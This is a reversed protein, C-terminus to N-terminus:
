PRRQVPKPAKAPKEPEPGAMEDVRARASILARNLAAAADPLKASSAPPGGQIKGDILYGWTWLQGSPSADADISHGRYTETLVTPQQAM